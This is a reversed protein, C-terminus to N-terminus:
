LSCRDTSLQPLAGCRGMPGSSGGRRRCCLAPTALWGWQPFVTLVSWPVTASSSWLAVIGGGSACCVGCQWSGGEGKLLLACGGGRRSAGGAVEDGQRAWHLQLELTHCREAMPGMGYMHASARNARALVAVRQLTDLEELAERVFRHMRREAAAAEGPGAPPAALESPQPLSLGYLSPHGQLGQPPSPSSPQTPPHTPPHPPRSM